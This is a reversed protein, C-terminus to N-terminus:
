CRVLHQWTGLPAHETHGEQCGAVWTAWKLQWALSPWALSLWRPSLSTIVPAAIQIQRPLGHPSRMLCASRLSEPLVWKIGEASAKSCWVCVCVSVSEKDRERERVCVSEREIKCVCVCM